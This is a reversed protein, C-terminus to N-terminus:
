FLHHRVTEFLQRLRNSLMLGARPDDRQLFPPYYQNWANWLDTKFQGIAQQRAAIARARGAADPQEDRSRLALQSLEATVGMIERAFSVLSPLMDMEQHHLPSSPPMPSIPAAPVPALEGAVQAAALGATDRGSLGAQIDLVLAFGLIQWCVETNSNQSRTRNKGIRKLQQVHQHWM